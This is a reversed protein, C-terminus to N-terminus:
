TPSIENLLNNLLKKTLSKANMLRLPKVPRMLTIEDIHERNEPFGKLWSIWGHKLLVNKPFMIKEPVDWFRGDHYRTSNNNPKGHAAGISAM